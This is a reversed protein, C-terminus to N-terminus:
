RIQVLDGQELLLNTILYSGGAGLSDGVLVPTSRPTRKHSTHTQIM